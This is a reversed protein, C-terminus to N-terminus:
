DLFAMGFSAITAEQNELTLLNIDLEYNGKEAVKGQRPYLLRVKKGQLAIYGLPTSMPEFLILRESLDVPRYDSLWKQVIQGRNPYASPKALGKMVLAVRIVNQSEERVLSKLPEVIIVSVGVGDDRLFEYVTRDNMARKGIHIEEFSLKMGMKFRFHGIMAPLIANLEKQSPLLPDAQLGMKQCYFKLMSVAKITTDASFPFQYGRHLLAGNEDRFAKQVSLLYGEHPDIRQLIVIDSGYCIVSKSKTKRYSDVGSFLQRSLLIMGTNTPIQKGTAKVIANIFDTERKQFKNIFKYATKIGKRLNEVAFVVQPLDTKLGVAEGSLGVQIIYKGPCKRNDKGALIRMIPFFTLYTVPENGIEVPLYTLRRKEVVEKWIALMEPSKRKPDITDDVADFFKKQQELIRASMIAQNFIFGGQYSGRYRIEKQYKEVLEMDSINGVLNPVRYLNPSSLVELILTPSLLRLKAPQSQALILESM